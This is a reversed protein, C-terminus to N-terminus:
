SSPRVKRRATAPWRDLYRALSEQEAQQVAECQAWAARNVIGIEVAAQVCERLARPNLADIEWCRDGHRAVFWRYRVDRRKDSAPFSPLRPDLVNEPSLAVRKLVVHDARYRSLRAPLDVESMYLGSPDWDGTYL